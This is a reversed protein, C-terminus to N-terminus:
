PALPHALADPGRLPADRLHRPLSSPFALLHRASSPRLGLGLGFRSSALHRAASGVLFCAVTVLHRALVSPNLSLRLYFLSGRHVAFRFLCLNLLFRLELLLHSFNLIQQM